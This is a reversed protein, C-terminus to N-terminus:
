RCVGGDGDFDVFYSLERLHDALSLPKCEKLTAGSTQIYLGYKVDFGDVEKSLALPHSVSRDYGCWDMKAPIDIWLIHQCIIACYLALM